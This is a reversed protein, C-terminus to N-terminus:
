LPPIVRFGTKKSLEEALGEPDDKYENFVRRIEAKKKEDLVQKDAEYQKQIADMTAQLRKQNAEHELREQERAAQIQKLEEDHSEQIKKLDDAFSTKKKYFFLGAAIAGLAVVFVGWYKKLFAWLGKLFLM